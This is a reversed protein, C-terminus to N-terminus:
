QQKAGIILIFDPKDPSNKYTELWSPADYALTAQGAAQLIELNQLKQGYSLDYIISDEYERTPANATENVKFGYNQLNVATKAALGSIWTGNLVAVKAEGQVKGIAIPNSTTSNEPELYATTKTDAQNNKVATDTNEGFINQVFNQIVKFNGTQPILIYAGDEGRSAVLMGDPGDNLVKNSIQSRDIDKYDNWLKILAWVDLNTKINRNLESIIRSLMAPKLLTNRSLLKTKVAELILQQRKARAFDSGELGSAHRSRAYKLALSGDLHQWGQDFHLHEFRAYYDPNDEEGRIPYSYDDFTNEINVDVGGLEDIINVFGDFDISVYYNISTGLISSLSKTMAPGGSGEEKAEALANISNVKRWVGSDTPATLDRPISLLAAQKTSPRLSVLMITDALYGGDHNAGGMGLLLINVRDNDEGILEKDGSETLHTVRGWFTNNALWQGAGQSSMIVKGSFILALVIIAIFYNKAKRNKKLDNIFKEEEEAQHLNRSEPDKEELKQKFDIM